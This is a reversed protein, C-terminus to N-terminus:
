SRQPLRTLIWFFVFLCSALGNRHTHHLEALHRASHKCQPIGFSRSVSKDELPESDLLALYPLSWLKFESCDCLEHSSGSTYPLFSNQRSNPTSSCTFDLGRLLFVIRGPIFPHVLSLHLLLDPLLLVCQLTPHLGRREQFSLSLSLSLCVSLCVREYTRAHMYTCTHARAHTHARACARTPTNPTPTPSSLFTM